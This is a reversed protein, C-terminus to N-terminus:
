VRVACRATYVFMKGLAGAEVADELDQEGPRVYRTTTEIREHGLLMQVENLGRGADIIEKAFTHRLVHPSLVLGARSAVYGVRKEVARTTLDGFLREGCDTGRVSLWMEVLARADKGLPVVRRKRGKGLVNLSGRRDGLTLDGLRLGVVESLRLGALVMVGVMALDRLARERRMVTSAANVELEAARLLAMKEQHTVWRPGSDVEKAREIGKFSFLTIGYQESIWGCLVMLMARRRNWTAAACREVDMSWARFSRVDMSNMLVPEFAQGNAAEFWRSFVAVDRLYSSVTLVSRKEALFSMFEDRWAM